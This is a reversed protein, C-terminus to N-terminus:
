LMFVTSEVIKTERNTFSIACKFLVDFVELLFHFDLNYQRQTITTNLIIYPIIYFIIHMTPILFIQM